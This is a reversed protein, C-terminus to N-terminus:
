VEFIKGNYDEKPVVGSSVGRCAPYKLPPNRMLANACEECMCYHGCPVLVHTKDSVTCIRCIKTEDVVETIASALAARQEDPTYSPEQLPVDHIDPAPEWEDTESPEWEVLHSVSPHIEPPPRLEEMSYRSIVAEFGLRVIDYFPILLYRPNDIVDVPTCNICSFNGFENFCRIKNFCYVPNVLCERCRRHINIWTSIFDTRSTLRSEKFLKKNPLNKVLKEEDRSLRTGKFMM